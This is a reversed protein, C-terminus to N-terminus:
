KVTTTSRMRACAKSPFGPPIKSCGFLSVITSEVNASSVATKASHGNAICPIISRIESTALFDPEPQNKAGGLGFNHDTVYGIRWNKFDVSLINFRNVGKFIKAAYDTAISDNRAFDITTNLLSCGGEIAQVSKPM